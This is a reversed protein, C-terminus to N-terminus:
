PHFLTIDIGRTAYYLKREMFQLYRIIDMSVTTIAKCMKINYMFNNMHMPNVFAPGNVSLIHKETPIVPRDLEKHLRYMRGDHMQHNVVIDTHSFVDSDRLDDITMQGSYMIDMNSWVYKKVEKAMHDWAWGPNDIFFTVHPEDMGSFDRFMNDYQPKIKDWIWEENICEIGDLILQDRNKEVAEFALGISEVTLEPYYVVGRVNNIMGDGVNKAIAFPVGCAISEYMILPHAEFVSTSLIMDQERIFKPMDSRDRYLVTGPGGAVNITHGYESCAKLALDFLKGNRNYNGIWGVKM